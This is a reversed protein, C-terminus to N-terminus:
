YTTTENSFCCFHGEIYINDKNGGSLCNRRFGQTGGRCEADCQNIPAWSGWMNCPDPIYEERRIRLKRKAVGTFMTM